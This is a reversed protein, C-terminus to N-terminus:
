DSEVAPLIVLAASVQVPGQGDPGTLPQAAKGLTREIIIESCKIVDSAKSKPDNMIGVLRAVADPTAAMLARKVDQDIPKRGRPNPSAMGKQWDNGPSPAQASESPALKTNDDEMARFTNPPSSHFRVM